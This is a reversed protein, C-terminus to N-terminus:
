WVWPFLRWRVGSAYTNYDPSTILVREEALIRLAILPIAAALPALHIWRPAALCCALIMLLEGLYAPHRVIRYPGKSVTGRIAPLIAFCRGLCVFSIIALSGGAVFILQAPLTWTPPTVQLAWGAIVLAPICALCSKLSGQRQVQCRILILVGVLLHLAAIVGRVVPPRTETNAVVSLIAWSLVSLSLLVNFSREAITVKSRMYRLHLPNETM